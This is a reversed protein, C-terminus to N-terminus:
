DQLEALRQECLNLLARADNYADVPDRMNLDTVARRLWFSVDFATTIKHYKTPYDM